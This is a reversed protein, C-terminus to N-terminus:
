KLGSAVLRDYGRKLKGDFVIMDQDSDVKIDGVGTAITAILKKADALSIKEAIVEGTDHVLDYRGTGFSPTKVTESLAEIFSRM